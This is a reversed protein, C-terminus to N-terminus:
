WGTRPLRSFAPLNGVLVLLYHTPHAAVQLWNWPDALYARFGYSLSTLFEKLLFLGNLVMGAVMGRFFHRQREDASALQGRPAGGGLCAVAFGSFLVALAVYMATQLYVWMRLRRWLAAVVARMARAEFLEV